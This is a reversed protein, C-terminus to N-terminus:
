KRLNYNASDNRNRNNKIWSESSNVLHSTIFFSIIFIYYSLQVILRNRWKVMAEYCNLMSSPFLLRWVGVWVCDVVENRSSRLWNGVLRHFYERTLNRYKFWFRFCESKRHEYKPYRSIEAVKRYGINRYRRIYVLTCALRKAVYGAYSNWENWAFYLYERHLNCGTGM